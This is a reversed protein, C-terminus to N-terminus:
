GETADMFLMSDFRKGKHLDETSRLLQTNESRTADQGAERILPKRQTEQSQDYNVESCLWSITQETYTAKDRREHEKKRAMNGCLRWEQVLLKSKKNEKKGNIRGVVVRRRRRQVLRM